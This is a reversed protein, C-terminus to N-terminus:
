FRLSSLGVIVVYVAVGEAGMVSVTRRWNGKTKATIIALVCVLIATFIGSTLVIFVPGFTVVATAAVAVATIAFVHPVVKTINRHALGSTVATGITGSAIVVVMFAFFAIHDDSVVFYRAIFYSAVALVVAGLM